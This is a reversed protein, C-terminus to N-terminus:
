LRNMLHFIEAASVGHPAGLDSMRTRMRTRFVEMGSDDTAKMTSEFQSEHKELAVLKIDVVASVDEFHNPEDAEWLLLADPRHHQVGYETMHHKLFHPDRAAVIADCVNLGTNRHDPHLRYRKWPDHSLVVNPKVTRIALAIKDIAERSHELEGDTYGLFNVTGTAGVATAAARQEHQRSVILAPIDADPNWTGKSGDTCVLYHIVAGSKAWKALTGGCGFEIDDPHAGIALVVSPTDLNSTFSTPTVPPQGPDNASM